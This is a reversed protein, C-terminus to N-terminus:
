KVLFTRKFACIFASRWVRRSLIQSLFYARPCLMHVCYYQCNGFMLVGYGFVVTMGQAYFGHFNNIRRHLDGGHTIHRLFITYGRYQFGPTDLYPIHLPVLISLALVGWASPGRIFIFAVVKLVLWM